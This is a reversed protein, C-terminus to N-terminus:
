LIAQLNSVHSKPMYEQQEHFIYSNNESLICIINGIIKIIEKGKKAITFGSTKKPKSILPM